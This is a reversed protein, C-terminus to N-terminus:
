ASQTAVGSGSVATRTTSAARGAVAPWLAAGLKEYRRVPRLEPEPVPEPVTGDKRYWIPHESGVVTLSECDKAFDAVAANKRGEERLSELIVAAFKTKIYLGCISESDIGQLGTM